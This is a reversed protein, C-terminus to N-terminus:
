RDVLYGDFGGSADVNNASVENIRVEVVTRGPAKLPPSIPMITPNQGKPDMGVIRKVAKGSENGYNEEFLIHYDALATGAGASQLSGWFQTLYLDKKADVGYFAVLSQGRSAVINIATSVDVLPFATIIGANTKGTGFRTCQLRHIIAYTNATLAHTTGDMAVAETATIWDNDLGYVTVERCGTSGDDDAASASHLGHVRGTTPFVVIGGVTSITEPDTGTDIDPNDGFKHLVAFGPVNGRAVELAFNDTKIAETTGILLQPNSVEVERKPGKYEFAGSSTAILLLPLIWKM